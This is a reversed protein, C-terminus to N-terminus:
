LNPNRLENFAAGLHALVDTALLSEESAGGNFISIEAARGCVWAGLRAADYTPLKQGLLGACIGTLEPMMLVRDVGLAGLAGLMRQVM